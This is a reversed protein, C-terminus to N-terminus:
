FKDYLIIKYLFQFSCINEFQGYFLVINSRQLSSNCFFSSCSCAAPLPPPARPSSLIECSSVCRALTEEVQEWSCSCTESSSACFEESCFSSCLDNATLYHISHLNYRIIFFKPPIFNQHTLSTLQFQVLINHCISMSKGFDGFKEGALIKYRM